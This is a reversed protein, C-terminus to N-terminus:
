ICFCLWVLLNVGHNTRVSISGHFIVIPATTMPLFCISLAQRCPRAKTHIHEEQGGALLLKAFVVM